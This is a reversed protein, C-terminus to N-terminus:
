MRRYLLIAWLSVVFSTLTLISSTHHTHLIYVLFAGVLLIRLLAYAIHKLMLSIPSSKVRILSHSKFLAIYFIAAGFGTILALFLAAVHTALECM